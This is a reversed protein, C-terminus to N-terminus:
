ANKINDLFEKIQKSIEESQESIIFASDFVKSTALHVQSSTKNLDLMTKSVESVNQATVIVNQSIQKTSSSQEEVASAIIAEIKNISEVSASIDKISVNVAKSIDQVDTIQKSVEETAKSTQIALKKVESAVVAFGKGFEGARASEITANLALLDIQSAINGIISVIEGIKNTSEQLITVTSDAAKSKNVAGNIFNISNAIQSNIKEISSTLEGAATASSRVDEQVVNATNTVRNASENLSNSINVMGEASSKLDSTICVLKEIFSSSKNQFDDIYAQIKNQRNVIKLQQEREEWEVKEMKIKADKYAEFLKEIRELDDLKAYNNEQANDKAIFKLDNTIKDTSKKIKSIIVKSIILSVVMCGIIISITYILQEKYAQDFFTRESALELVGISKNNHFIGVLCVSFPKNNIIKNYLVCNKNNQALSYEETSFLNENLTSAVKNIQNNAEIYLSSEISSGQKYDNLFEGSFAKLKNITTNNDETFANEINSIVDKYHGDLIYELSHDILNKTHYIILPMLVLTFLVIPTVFGIKIRTQLKV